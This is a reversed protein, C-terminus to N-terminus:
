ETLVSWNVGQGDNYSCARQFNNAVGGAVDGGTSIAVVSGDCKAFNVVGTHMSNFTWWNGPPTLGWQTPLPGSGIWTPTYVPASGDSPGGLAEGYLLTNSTGDAATIVSFSLKSDDGFVGPYPWIPDSTGGMYGAVGLYNTAGLFNYGPWYWFDMYYQASAGSGITFSIICAVDNSGQVGASPCIFVPITTQAANWTPNYRWWPSTNPAPPNTFYNNPMGYTYNPTYPNTMIEYLPMQDIYPLILALSGILPGNLGNLYYYGAYAGTYATNALFGAPLAKTQNEFNACALAINKLNNQCQLRAAAARVKQVAPVLLAILIAIIAIVVLLEILTFGRRPTSGRGM